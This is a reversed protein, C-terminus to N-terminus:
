MLKFLYTMGGDELSRKIDAFRFIKVDHGIIIECVVNQEIVPDDFEILPYISSWIVMSYLCAELAIHKRVVEQM